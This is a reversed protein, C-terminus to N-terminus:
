SYSQKILAETFTFQQMMLSFLSLLPNAYVANNHNLKNNMASGCFWSTPECVLDTQIPKQGKNEAGQQKKHCFLMWSNPKSLKSRFWFFDRLFILGCFFLNRWGTWSNLSAKKPLRFISLLSFLRSGRSLQKLLKQPFSFAPKLGMCKKQLGDRYIRDQPVNPVAGSFGLLTCCELSIPSTQRPHCNWSPMEWTSELLEWYQRLQQLSLSTHFRRVGNKLLSVTVRTIFPLSPISGFHKSWIFSFIGTDLIKM